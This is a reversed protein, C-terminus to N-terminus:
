DLCFAKNIDDETIIVNPIKQLEWWKLAQHRFFGPVKWWDEDSATLEETESSVKLFWLDYMWANLLEERTVVATWMKGVAIGSARNGTRVASELDRESLSSGRSTIHTAIAALFTDGAGTVDSVELAETPLHFIHGSITVLTAWLQSRTIVLHSELAKSLRPGYKMIFDHTNEAKEILSKEEPFSLQLQEKFEKFNPKIILSKSFWPIQGPKADTIVPIGLSLIKEVLTRTLFWKKYSSLVVLSGHQKNKTVENQILEMIKSEDSERLDETKWFDLRILPKHRDNVEFVRTKVMTPLSWVIGHFQISYKECIKKIEVWGQDQGIRWILTVRGWLASANAAVNWVWWLAWSEWIIDVLPTGHWEPNLRQITGHLAKDAM